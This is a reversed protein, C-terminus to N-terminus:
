GRKNATTRPGRDIQETCVYEEHGLSAKEYGYGSQLRWIVM